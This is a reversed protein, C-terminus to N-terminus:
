EVVFIRNRGSKKATYMAYDAQNILSTLTDGEHLYASIGVSISLTITTKGLQIPTNFVCQKLREAVLRAEDLTTEPLFLIFEDGGYRGFIDMKRVEPLCRRIIEKLATDGSPHGYNDNVNKFQDIDFVIVSLAQKFRRSQALAREGLELLQRRNYIGTLEDITAMAEVREYLRTQYIGIAVMRSVEKIIEVIEPSLQQGESFGVVFHGIIHHKIMLPIMMCANINERCVMHSKKFILDIQRPDESMLVDFSRLIGTNTREVEICQSEEAYKGNNYHASYLCLKQENSIEQIGVFNYKVLQLFIHMTTRAIEETSDAELIAEDMKHLIELRNAYQNLAEERKRQNSLNFCSFSILTQQNHQTKIQVANLLFPILRKDASQIYIEIDHIEQKGALMDNVLSEIRKYQKPFLIELPRHELTNLPYGLKTSLYTNAYYIKKEATIILMGMNAHDAVTKFTRIHDEAQIRHTIDHINEIAGTINGELDKLPAATLNIWHLSEKIQIPVNECIYAGEILPHRRVMGQNTEIIDEDCKGIAIMAALCPFDPFDVRKWPPEMSGLVDAAPVGCLKEYARNFFTTQNHKDIVRTPVSNGMLIQSLFVQSEKLSNEAMKREIAMAIQSSCFEMILKDNESLRSDDYTQIVIVGITTNGSILPIGMWHNSPPGIMEYYGAKINRADTEADVLLSTGTRIVYETKGNRLPVRGPFKDKEDVHYPFELFQKEKNYLAIFLNRANIVENILTHIGRYLSDLNHETHVIQSIKYLLHELRGKVMQESTHHASLIMKQYNGPELPFVELTTDIKDPSIADLDLKFQVPFNMEGLQLLHDRFSSAILHTPKIPFSAFFLEENDAKLWTMATQNAHNFKLQAMAQLSFQMDEQIIEQWTNPHATKLAHLSEMIETYDAQLIPNPFSDFAQHFWDDDAYRFGDANEACFQSLAVAPNRNAFPHSLLPYTHNHTLQRQWYIWPYLPLSQRILDEPIDALDFHFLFNISKLDDHETIAQLFDLQTSFPNTQQPLWNMDIVVWVPTKFFAGKHLLTEQVNKIIQSVSCTQKGAGELIFANPLMGFGLSSPCYFTFACEPKVSLTGLLTYIDDRLSSTHQQQFPHFVHCSENKDPLNSTRKM